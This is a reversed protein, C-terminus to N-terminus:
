EALTRAVRFGFTLADRHTSIGFRNAIRLTWATSGWSGGRLVRWDCNGTAAASGDSPAGRYDPRWCDEVWEWANGHVDHLGWPNPEKSAVPQARNGSNAAYWAVKDLCSPNDGCFWRTTTGARAAYEWEAESLLRYHQGTLRSLWRVYSKAQKWDVNMLPARHLALDEKRLRYNRVSERHPLSSCGGAEVCAKWQTFTVELRGVAFPRAIRVRRRPGLRKTKGDAEGMIFAGAPVIVMQPCPPCDVFVSGPAMVGPQVAAAAAAVGRFPLSADSAVAVNGVGLCLLAAFLVTKSRCFLNPM